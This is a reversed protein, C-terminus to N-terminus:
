ASRKWTTGGPGDELIVGRAALEDRIRDATPFDKAKRAAAREAILREIEAEDVAAAGAPAWKFWDDPDQELLGLLSASHRLEAAKLMLGRDDTGLDHFVSDAIVHLVSIALPTNLDDCIADIVDKAVLDDDAAARAAFVPNADEIKKLELLARYFRDLVNKAERIKDKTFDLPQRYHTQLLVLRIAEGPVEDLLDHVTYFNGLSKSMKEGEVMVYGNHVWYRVFPTGHHACVSQALENEHHPFVLDQGGGHIDFTEGLCSAAM